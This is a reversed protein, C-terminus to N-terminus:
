MKLYEGITRQARKYDAVIAAEGSAIGDVFKQVTMYDEDGRKAPSNMQWMKTAFAVAKDTNAGGGSTAVILGSVQVEDNPKLGKCLEALAAATSKVTGRKPAREKTAEESM